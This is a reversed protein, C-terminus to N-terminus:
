WEDYGESKCVGCRFGDDTGPSRALMLNAFFVLPVIALMIETMLYGFRRVGRAFDTELITRAIAVAISALETRGGTLVILMDTKGSRVTTGAFVANSRERIQADDTSLGPTKVM